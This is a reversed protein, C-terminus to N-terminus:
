AIFWRLSCRKEMDNFVLSYPDCRRYVTHGDTRLMLWGFDWGMSEYRLPIAPNVRILPHSGGIFLKEETYYYCSGVNVFIEHSMASGGVMDSCLERVGVKVACGSAFADCLADRSGSKVAGTADHSFVETWRNCVNFRFTEFDYMFNSSPSNTKDDWSDLTHYKPMGPPSVPSAIGPMGVPQVGDLFPRAIAQQGDQNYLFFSLSPRPGFGSPLEIPQRQSMIGAVWVGEILYTVGFEAVEQILEARGSTPDIHENHAFETYIRLDSGNRIADVLAAESGGVIGRESSLELACRWQSM